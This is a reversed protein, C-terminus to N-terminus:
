GTTAACTSAPSSASGGCGSGCRTRTSTSRRPPPASTAAGTCSSRWRGAAAVASRERDYDALRSVAEITADRVGGELAIRLLYKYAGLEDFGLVSAERKLVATGLLAQRAEEFGERFARSASARARSASRSPSPLAAHARRVSEVAREAGAPPVRLSRACRTRAATSCRAPCFRRWLPARAGDDAPEAALVLHPLELDCGLRAARGEVDGGARGAALDEFFDKILNKETLREILQIKKIGVAAQSAVARALDVSASGEAVAARAARRGRDAARRRALRPWRPRAGARARLARADSASCRGAAHSARLTSSRAARSSCTSTAPGRASCSRRARADGGARAGRPHPARAIAEALGAITELERVRTRMEEYLRANEIAGAVLSASTVLFDVEAQTFERPAETHASIVGIVGGDRAAIPVCLLSQFREEELEPVYKTRPDDLLNERIFAPERREAAWWALGEGRELAIEGILHEYPEGAARLVLREGDDDVLYVFCAHVASAESLLRVVARLVEDLELTSGVTSIIRALVTDSDAEARKM